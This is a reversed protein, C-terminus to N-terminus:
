RGTPLGCLVPGAHVTVRFHCGSVSVVMLAALIFAAILRRRM